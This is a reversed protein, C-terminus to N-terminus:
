GRFYLYAALICVLVLASGAVDRWDWGARTVARDENTATAYTLGRLKQYDPEASWLSGAVAAVMAVGTILISFYQFYFNNIM